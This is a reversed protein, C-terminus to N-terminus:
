KGNQMLKGQLSSNKFHRNIQLNNKCYGHSKRLNFTCASYLCLMSNHVEYGSTTAWGYQMCFVLKIFAIYQWLLLFISKWVYCLVLSVAPGSAHQCQAPSNFLLFLNLFFIREVHLLSIAHVPLFSPTCSWTLIVCRSRRMSTYAWTACGNKQAFSRFESVPTLFCESSQTNPGRNCEAHAKAICKQLYRYM